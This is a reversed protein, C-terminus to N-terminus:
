SDLLVDKEFLTQFHRRFSPALESSCKKVVKPISKRGLSKKIYVQHINELRANQLTCCSNHTSLCQCFQFSSHKGYIKWHLDGSEWLLNNRRWVNYISFCLKLQLKSRNEDVFWIYKHNKLATSSTEICHPRTILPSSNDSM